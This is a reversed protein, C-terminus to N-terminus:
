FKDIKLQNAPKQFDSKIEIQSWVYIGGMHRLPKVLMVEKIEQPKMEPMNEWVADAEGKLVRNFIRKSFAPPNKPMYFGDSSKLRETSLGTKNAGDILINLTKNFIETAAYGLPQRELNFNAAYSSLLKGAKDRIEDEIFHPQWTQSTEMTIGMEKAYELVAEKAKDVRGEKSDYTSFIYPHNGISEGLKKAFHLFDDKM